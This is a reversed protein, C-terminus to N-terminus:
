RSGGLVLELAAEEGAVVRARGSARVRDHNEAVVEYTGPPLPGFRQGREPEEPGDTRRACAGVDVGESLIRLAAGVDAGSPERVRVVLAGAPALVLEVDGGGGPGLILPGALPSAREATWAAAFAVGTAGPLELEFRGEADSERSLGPQLADSPLLLHVRAGAVPERAQDLVRGRVRTPGADLALDIGTRAQGETLEFATAPGDSAALEGRAAVQYEGAPLGGLRYRGDAASRASAYAFSAGLDATRRDPEVRVLASGVPEGGADRVTGAISGSPLELDLEVETRDGPLEIRRGSSAEGSTLQVDYSGGGDVVLEYHGGEDCTAGWTAARASSRAFTLAAGPVAQTGSLVRGFVHVPREVPGGLVLEVTEGAHIVARADLVRECPIPGAFRAAARVNVEGPALDDFRAPLARSTEDPPEAGDHALAVVVEDPRRGEGDVVDVVLAGGARLALTIGELSQKPELRLELPESPAAGGARAVLRVLGPALDFAFTGDAEAPHPSPALPVGSTPGLVVVEAGAVAGGFVGLVRGSVTAPLVEPGPPGEERESTGASLARALRSVVSTGREDRRAVLQSRPSAAALPEEISGHRTPEVVRVAPRPVVAVEPARAGTRLTALLGLAGLLIAGLAALIAAHRGM